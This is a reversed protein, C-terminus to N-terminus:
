GALRLRQEALSPFTREVRAAGLVRPRNRIQLTREIGGLFDSTLEALREVELLFADHGYDSQIGMYTADVGAQLLARVLEKSQEPPFLWDSSYSLVLLRARIRQLAATLSAHGEALDFYDIAKTMYLLCNADFRETFRDGQYKLYSEVEFETAFQYGYSAQTQLRRGFKQRMSTESLYTIHGIMRALALGTSPAQAHYYDGRKWHPDSYIAQRAVENLAIAQASVQATSALIIASHVRNPYSVTWQLAQMGGMSGGTVCLLRPIGLTDLLQRQAEVMDAITVMPFSLGYYQGTAPNISAPGTSGSCGGIVNSCIVFYRNTDFVKGPGVAADWWGRRPDHESHRGAVHASGSLAHCILIANSRDENLTGYSEYALRVPGLVAGSRLSLRQTIDLLRTQVIM